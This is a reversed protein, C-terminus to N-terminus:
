FAFRCASFCISVLEGEVHKKEVELAKRAEEAERRLDRVTAEQEELSLRLNEHSISLQVLEGNLKSAEDEWRKLAAQAGKLAAREQQLQGLAEEQALHERELVARAEVLAAREQRLQGEAEQRAVREQRLQKEATVVAPAKDVLNARLEEADKAREEAQSQWARARELAARDRQLQACASVVEAECEAVVAHAGALDQRARRLAEDRGELVMCVAEVASAGETPQGELELLQYRLAEARYALWGDETRLAEVLADLADRQEQLRRLESSMRDLADYRGRTCNEL